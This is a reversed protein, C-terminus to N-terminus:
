RPSTRGVKVRAPRLIGAGHRYGRQLEELVLNERDPAVTEVAVAEAVNPDYELGLTEIPEVGEAKLLALLQQRILDIGDAVIKSDAEAVRAARDLNDVVEVMSTLLRSKGEMVRREVDRSLRERVDDIERHARVMAERALKEAAEARAKLEEVIAPYRPEGGPGSMGEEARAHHRKDVVNIKIERGEDSPSGNGKRSSGL